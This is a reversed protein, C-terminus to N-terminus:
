SDGSVECRGSAETAAVAADAERMHGRAGCREGGWAGSSLGHGARETGIGRAKSWVLQM